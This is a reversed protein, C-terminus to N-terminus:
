RRLPHYPRSPQVVPESCICELHVASTSHMGHLHVVPLRGDIRTASWSFPLRGLVRSCVKQVVELSPKAANAPEACCPLPRPQLRRRQAALRKAKRARAQGTPQALQAATCVRTKSAYRAVGPQVVKTRHLKARAQMGRPALCDRTVARGSAVKMAAQRGRKSLVFHLLGSVPRLKVLWWGRAGRAALNGLCGYAPLGAEGPM